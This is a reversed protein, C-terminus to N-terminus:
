EQILGKKLLKKRLYNYASLRIKNKWSLKQSCLKAFKKSVAKNIKKKEEETHLQRIDYFKHNFGQKITENFLKDRCITQAYTPLDKYYPVLGWTRFNYQISCDKMCCNNGIPEFHIPKTLDEFINQEIPCGHCKKTSGDKLEVHLSWEGAYCFHEQTNIDLMENYVEYVNSHFKEKLMSVLEADYMDAKKHINQATDFEMYATIQPPEGINDICLQIIEDLYPIYEECVVLFPFCSAGADVLKKMNDFYDDLKNLRKLELYHLSGKVMLRKMDEPPIENILEDIRNNLTLNTVIEVFHGEKLSGKVMDIIERPVLTEGTGCYVISAIGGLREKNLAKLMHDVSYNFEAKTFKHDNLQSVYCYKCRLNCVDGPVAATVTLRIKDKDM